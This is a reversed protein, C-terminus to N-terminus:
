LIKKCANLDPVSSCDALSQSQQCFMCVPLGPASAVFVSTHARGQNHVHHPAQSVSDSARERAIMEQELTELLRDMDLDDASVKRIVILPM